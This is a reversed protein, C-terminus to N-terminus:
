GVIVRGIVFFRDPEEVVGKGHVLSHAPGGIFGIQFVGETEIGKETM